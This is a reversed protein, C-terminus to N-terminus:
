AAGFLFFCCRWSRSFCSYTMSFSLSVCFLFCVIVNLLLSLLFCDALIFLCYCLVHNSLSRIAVFSQLFPLLRCVFLLPMEFVNGKWLFSICFYNRCFFFSYSSIFLESFNSVTVQMLLFFEFFFQLQLSFNIRMYEFVTLQGLPVSHIKSSM